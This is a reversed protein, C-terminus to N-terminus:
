AGLLTKKETTGPQMVGSGSTLITNSGARIRDRVRAGVDEGIDSRSV